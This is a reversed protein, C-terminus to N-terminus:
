IRLTGGQPKSLAQLEEWSYHRPLEVDKKDAGLGLDLTKDAEEVLGALAEGAISGVIAGAVGGVAAGLGGAVSKGIAAGTIGGGAAGLGTAIAHSKSPESNSDTQAPQQENMPKEDNM